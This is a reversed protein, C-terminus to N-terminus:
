EHEEIVKVTNLLIQTLQNSIGFRKANIEISKLINGSRQRESSAKWDALMEILDILTMDNIGNKFHQPHHKNVAYHHNLAPELAKLEQKYEESGYEIKNLNATHEAFVSCEPEELKSADHHEARYLLKTIFFDIYERVKDIHKQTEVRCEDLTM